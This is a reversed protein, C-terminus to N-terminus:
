VPFMKFSIKKLDESQISAFDIERGTRNHENHLSIPNKYPGTQAGCIRM